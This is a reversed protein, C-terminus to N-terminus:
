RAATPRSRLTSAFSTRTAITDCVFIWTLSDNPLPLDWALHVNFGGAPQPTIASFAPAEGGLLTGCSDDLSLGHPLDFEIHLFGDGGIVRKTLAQYKFLYSNGTVLCTGVEFGVFSYVNYAGDPAIQMTDSVFGNLPCPKRYFYEVGFKPLVQECSHECTYTDFLLLLSDGAAVLPLVLSADRVTQLGCLPLVSSAALNPPLLTAVGNRVIRFSNNGIGALGVVDGWVYLRVLVDTADASGANRIKLGNVSPTQGCYDTPPNWIQEFVLDPVRSSKKIEVAVVASDYRCIEGGCGWGVRLLSPNTFEPTGCDTVVIKETFCVTEGLELWEDGDGFQTFFDSDFDAQLFVSDSTQNTVNLLTTEFGPLHEDEFHLSGIKGLRTNTVCIKRLLTDGKEGSLLEDEISEILLLGTELAFNSTSVSANGAVSQVSINAIFLQGADLKDAAECDATVLLAVSVSAGSALNPLGFVPQALNSVNQQTAGTVSGPLYTVGTPLAVNLSANTVAGTGINAVQIFFTDAGCVFLSDSKKYTILINQSFVPAAFLCFLALTSFRAFLRM